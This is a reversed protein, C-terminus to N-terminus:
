AGTGFAALGSSFRWDGGDSGWAESTLVFVRGGAAPALLQQTYAFRHSASPEEVGLEAHWALAGTPADLAAITAESHGSSGLAYVRGRADAMVSQFTGGGTDDHRWALSGSALDLAVVSRTMGFTAWNAGVVFMHAGDAALDFGIDLPLAASAVLTASAADVVVLDTAGQGLGVLRSGDPTFALRGLFPTPTPDLARSAPAPAGVDHVEIRSKVPDLWGGFAVRAGDPSVAIAPMNTSVSEVRAILAGDAVSRRELAAPTGYGGLLVDVVGDGRVVLDRAQLSPQPWALEWLPAGTRLDFAHLVPARDRQGLAYAGAADLGAAVGATGAPLARSWLAHGSAADWATATMRQPESGLRTGVVLVYRGDPSAASDNALAEAGAADRARWDLCGETPCPRCLMELTCTLPDRLEPPLLATTTPALLVAIALLATM